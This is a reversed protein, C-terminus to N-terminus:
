VINGHIKIGGHETTRELVDIAALTRTGHKAQPATAKANEHIVENLTWGVELTEVKHSM